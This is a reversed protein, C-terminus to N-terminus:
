RRGERSKGLRWREIDSELGSAWRKTMAGKYDPIKGMKGRMAAEGQRAFLKTVSMPRGDPHRFDLKLGLLYEVSQETDMSSTKYWDDHDAAEKSIRWYLEEGERLHYYEEPYSFFTDAQTIGFTALSVGDIFEIVETTLENRSSANIRVKDEAAQFNEMSIMHIPVPISSVAMEARAMAEKKRRRNESIKVM